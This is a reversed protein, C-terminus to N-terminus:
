KTEKDNAVRWRPGPQDDGLGIDPDQLMTVASCSKTDCESIGPDCGPHDLHDGAYSDALGVDVPCFGDSAEACRSTGVRYSIM